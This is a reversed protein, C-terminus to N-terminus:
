DTPEPGREVRLIRENAEYLRRLVAGKGQVLHMSSVWARKTKYTVWIGEEESQM